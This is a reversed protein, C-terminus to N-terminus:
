TGYGFIPMGARYPITRFRVTRYAVAKSSVKNPFEIGSADCSMFMEFKIRIDVGVRLFSILSLAFYYNTSGHQFNIM